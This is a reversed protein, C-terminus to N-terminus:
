VTTDAKGSFAAAVGRVNAFYVCCLRACIRSCVEHGGSKVFDLLMALLIKERERYNPALARSKQNTFRVDNQFFRLKTGEQDKL